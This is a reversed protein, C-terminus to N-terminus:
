HGSCKEVASRVPSILENHRQQWHPSGRQVKHSRHM